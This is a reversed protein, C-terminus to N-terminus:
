GIAEPCASQLIIVRCAIPQYKEPFDALPLYFLQTVLDQLPNPDEVSEVDKIFEKQACSPIKDLVGSPASQCIFSKVPLIKGQHATRDAAENWQIDKHAPVWVLDVRHTMRYRLRLIETLIRRRVLAEPGSQKFKSTDNELGRLTKLAPEYDTLITVTTNLYLAIWFGSLLALLEPADRYTNDPLKFCAAATACLKGNLFEYITIGYGSGGSLGNGSSGDTAIICQNPFKSLIDGDRPPSPKSYILHIWDELSRTLHGRADLRADDIHLCEYSSPADVSQSVSEVGM